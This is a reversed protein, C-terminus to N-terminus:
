LIIILFTILLHIIKGYSYNTQTSILFKSFYGLQNCFVTIDEERLSESCVAGWEGDNCFQLIGTTGSTGNNYYDTTYQALRIVGFSSCEILLNM